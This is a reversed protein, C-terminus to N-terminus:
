PEPERARRTSGNRDAWSYTGGGTLAMIIVPAILFVVDVRRM